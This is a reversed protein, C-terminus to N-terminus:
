DWNFLACVSVASSSTIQIQTRIQMQMPELATLIRLLSVFLRCCFSFYFHKPYAWKERQRLCWWTSHLKFWFLSLRRARRAQVLAGCGPPSASSSRGLVLKVKMRFQTFVVRRARRCRCRRLRPRPRPQRRPSCVVSFIGTVTLVRERPTRTHTDTYRHMRCMSRAFPCKPVRALKQWYRQETEYEYRFTVSCRAWPYVRPWCRVSCVPM